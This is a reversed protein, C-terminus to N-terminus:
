DLDRNQRLLQKTRKRDRRSHGREFQDSHPGGKNRLPGGPRRNRENWDKKKEIARLDEPTLVMVGHENTRPKKVKRKASKRLDSAVASLRNSVDSM